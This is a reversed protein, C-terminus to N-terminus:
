EYFFTSDNIYNAIIKNKRVSQNVVEGGQVEVVPILNYQTKISLQHQNSFVPDNKCQDVFEERTYYVLPPIDLLLVERFYTDLDILEQVYLGYAQDVFQDYMQKSM